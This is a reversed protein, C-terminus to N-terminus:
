EIGSKVLAHVFSFARLDADANGPKFSIAVVAFPKAPEAGDDRRLWFLYTPEDGAMRQEGNGVPDAEAARITEPLLAMLAPEVSM